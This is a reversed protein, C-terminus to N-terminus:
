NFVALAQGATDALSTEASDIVFQCFKEINIKQARLYNSLKLDSNLVEIFKPLVMARLRQEIEIYQLFEKQSITQAGDAIRELCYAERAREMECYYSIFEIFGGGRQADEIDSKFSKTWYYEYVGLLLQSKSKYYFHIADLSCGSYEVFSKMNFNKIGRSAIYELANELMLENSIITM